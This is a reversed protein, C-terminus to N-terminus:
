YPYKLNQVVMLSKNVIVIYYVVSVIAMIATFVIKQGMGVEVKDKDESM